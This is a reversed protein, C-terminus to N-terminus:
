VMSRIGPAHGRKGVCHTLALDLASPAGLVRAALGRVDVRTAWPGLANDLADVRWPASMWVRDLLGGGPATHRRLARSPIICLDGRDGQIRLRKRTTVPASDEESGLLVELTRSRPGIPKFLVVMLWAAIARDEVLSARRPPPDRHWGYLHLGHGDERYGPVKEFRHPALHHPGVLDNAVVSLAATIAKGGPSHRWAEEFDHARAFREADDLDALSLRGPLHLFGERLRDSAASM